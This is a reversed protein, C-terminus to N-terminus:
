HRCPEPHGTGAVMSRGLQQNQTSEWARGSTQPDLLTLRDQGTAQTWGWCAASAPEEEATGEGAQQAEQGGSLSERGSAHVTLRVQHLFTGLNAARTAPLQWKQGTTRPEPGM